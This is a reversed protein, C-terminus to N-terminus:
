IPSLVAEPTESTTPVPDSYAFVPAVDALFLIFYAPPLNYSPPAAAPVVTLSFNSSDPIVSFDFYIPPM